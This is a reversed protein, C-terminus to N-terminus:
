APRSGSAACTSRERPERFAENTELRPWLILMGLGGAILSALFIGIKAAAYEAPDPLALGAIFLSM